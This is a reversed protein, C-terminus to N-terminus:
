QNQKLYCASQYIDYQSKLKDVDPESQQVMRLSPHDTLALLDFGRCVAVKQLNPLSMILDIVHQGDGLYSFDARELHPLGAISSVDKLSASCIELQKLQKWAACEKPLKTLSHHSWKVYQLSSLGELGSFDSEDTLEKCFSLDLTELNGLGGMHKPLENWKCHALGLAKLQHAEALFDDPLNETSELDLEEISSLSPMSHGNLDASILGLAKLAPLSELLQRVYQYSEEYYACSTLELGTLQKLQCLPELADSLSLYNCHVHQLFPMEALPAFDRLKYTNYLYLHRLGELMTLASIDTINQLFNIELSEVQTLGRVNKHFTRFKRLDDLKLVRLAPWEVLEKPFVSSKLDKYTVKQVNPYSAIAGARAKDVGLHVVHEEFGVVSEYDSPELANLYSTGYLLDDLSLGDVIESTYFPFDPRERNEEATEAYYSFLEDRVKYHFSLM